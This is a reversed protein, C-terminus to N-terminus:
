SFTLKDKQQRVKTIKPRVKIQVPLEIQWLDTM